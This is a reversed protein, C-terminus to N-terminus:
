KKYIMNRIDNCARKINENELDGAIKDRSHMVTTHDRGFIMGITKLPVALIETILYICMQRPYVIEKNKKKGILDDKSVKYYKCVVDIVVDITLAENSDAQGKKLIGAVSDVTLEAEYLKSHFHARALNEELVRINSDNQEAIYHLVDEPVNYSQMASKKKLIAIRTELDPREINALLGSGFRSRLREELPYIEKPERDSSIIIQKGSSQLDNFTHFFEEQTATKGALFQIDDIMLVDVSRYRNRLAATGSPGLAIATIVENTFRESTVYVVKLGARKRSIYNGIAHMVHTKGLGTGGHIFLPNYSKGPAESVAYAAAHVFKNNGIVFSEFTYRPDLGSEIAPAAPAALIDGEATPEVFDERESPDIIMFGLDFGCKLIAQMIHPSYNKSIVAKTAATESFVILKNDRFGVPILKRIFVDFSVVPITKELEKVIENWIGTYDVHGAKLNSVLAVNDQEPRNDYVSV